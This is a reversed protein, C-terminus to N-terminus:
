IECHSKGSFNVPVITEISTKFAVKHLSINGNQPIGGNRFYTGSGNTLLAPFMGPDYLIVITEGRFEGNSNHLIKFKDLIDDFFIKHPKCQFTPVNWFVTFDKGM